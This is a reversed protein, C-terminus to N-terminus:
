ILSSLAERPKMKIVNQSGVDGCSQTFVRCIICLIVARVKTQVPHLKKMYISYQSKCHCDINKEASWQKMSFQVLDHNNLALDIFMGWSSFLCQNSFLRSPIQQLPSFSADDIQYIMDYIIWEMNDSVPRSICEQYLISETLTTTLRNDSINKEM